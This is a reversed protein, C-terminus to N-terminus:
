ADIVAGSADSRPRLEDLERELKRVKEELVLQRWLFIALVLFVGVWDAMHRPSWYCWIVFMGTLALVLRVRRTVARRREKADESRRSEFDHIIAEPSKNTSKM